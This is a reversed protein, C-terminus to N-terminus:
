RRVHSGTEARAGSTHRSRLKVRRNEQAVLDGWRPGQPPEGYRLHPQFRAAPLPSVVDHVNVPRGTTSATM